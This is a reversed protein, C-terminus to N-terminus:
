ASLVHSTLFEYNLYNQKFYLYLLNVRNGTDYKDRIQMFPETCPFDYMIIDILLLFKMSVFICSFINIFLTCFALTTTNKPM